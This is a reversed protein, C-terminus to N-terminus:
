QLTWDDRAVGPTVAAQQIEVGISLARASGDLSERTGCVRGTELAEVRLTCANMLGQRLGEHRCRFGIRYRQDAPYQPTM